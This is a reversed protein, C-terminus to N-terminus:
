DLINRIAAALAAIDGAPVLVLGPQSDLGCAKTAIVPVGAALATLLRRPSHEVMAPQVVAAIGSLWNASDPRGTPIGSWFQGSEIDSGLPVIELDIMRAADRLEYCGKRAITPGPFVIRRSKTRTPITAIRPRHWDLKVARTCFLEAIATHPTVIKDAAALAAMEWEAVDQPARFDTLTARDPVRSAHLDLTQQLERIPLRTVLVSFPRGGLHGDRWLFPLLSQAVCVHTIDPTLLKAFRKALASAGHLLALQRAPGQAALRRTAISRSLTAVTATSVEAFGATDWKYRAIAWRAGDLPIGLVDPSQRTRAIYDSFEPWAEDLLFATRRQATRHARERRFCSDEECTGCNAAHGHAENGAELAGIERPTGFDHGLLQVVLHERTLFARLLLPRSCRFRLDVYNWAITADRSRVAASGPVIRSHAHREVIECSAQVAVDYLANSLQCLGGGVARVLCGEQLMRGDVFGRMRSPRGLQRWFSFTSGALIQVGDLRRAAIRLNEVKGLQMRREAQREDSWLSTRSEAVVASFGAHSAKNLRQPRRGAEAAFRQLRFVNTKFAFIVASLRTPPRARVARHSFATVDTM